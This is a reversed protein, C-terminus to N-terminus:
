GFMLINWEGPFREIEWLATVEEHDLQTYVDHESMSVHLQGKSGWCATM